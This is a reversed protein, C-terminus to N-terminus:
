HCADRAFAKERDKGHDKISWAKNWLAEDNTVLMGGEGTTINKTPYFVAGITIGLFLAAAIQFWRKQILDKM